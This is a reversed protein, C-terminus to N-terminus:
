VGFLDQFMEGYGEPPLVPNSNAELWWLQDTEDLVGDLSYVVPAPITARLASAFSRGAARIAELAHDSFDQLQNDSHLSNAAAEYERGYRYDVQFRQGERPVVAPSLGQFALYDDMVGTDQLSAFALNVSRLRGDILESVTSHGDGDVEPPRRLHAFFPRQGWFWVKVARGRIFEEAFLGGRGPPQRAPRAGAAFPGCMEYGFSGNSRKLIYDRDPLQDATELDWMRPTALGASQAFRKFQPKDRGLDYSLPRYPLWGIFGATEPTLSATNGLRGAMTGVFQPYFRVYRGRCKVEMEFTIVDLEISAQARRGWEQVARFHTVFANIYAMPADPSRIHFGLPRQFAILM